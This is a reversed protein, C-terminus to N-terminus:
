NLRSCNVSYDLFELRASSQKSELNFYGSSLIEPFCGEIAAECGPWNGVQIYFAKLPGGIKVLYTRKSFQHFELDYDLFNEQFHDTSEGYMMKTKLEISALKKRVSFLNPFNPDPETLNKNELTCKVTGRVDNAIAHESTAMETSKFTEQAFTSFAGLLQLM